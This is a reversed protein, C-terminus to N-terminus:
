RAAPQGPSAQAAAHAEDDAHPGEEREDVIRRQGVQVLRLTTVLGLGGVLNGLTAWGIVALWDAYGYPAGAHLGGFVLLSVVIVHNLKGGIVLFAASVAAVLKAPMSDTGREMWTMLTIAAGGLIAAAFAHGAGLDLYHQGVEIATPRVEPVGAMIVGMVVWGALLNTFATGAWLRLLALPGAKGAVVAVVPVLFNETFLESNAMTLAIFGIGFALGALLPSGTAEEVLLMALVGVSIDVGGVAGTALLSPWSRGLRHEGEDVSRDFQSALEDSISTRGGRGESFRTRRM